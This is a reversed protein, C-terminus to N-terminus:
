AIIQMTKGCVVGHLTRGTGAIIPLYLCLARQGFQWMLQLLYWWFTSSAMTQHAFLAERLKAGSYSEVPKQEPGVCATVDCCLIHVCRSPAQSLIHHM